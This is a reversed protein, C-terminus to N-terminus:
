GKDILDGRALDDLLGGAVNLLPAPPLSLAGRFATVGAGDAAIAPEARCESPYPRARNLPTPEPM